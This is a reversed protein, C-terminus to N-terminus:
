KSNLMKVLEDIDKDSMEHAKCGQELTEMMAAPCGVCGMGAEFLVEAAEPKAQLVESMMSTKTIKKM